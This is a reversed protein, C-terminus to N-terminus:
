PGDPPVQLSAPARDRAFPVLLLGVIAVCALMAWAENVTLALSAREVLSRIFVVTADDPPGPLRNILLMPDLGIAQAASVDGALLRARFDEGYIPSRGYLITDILAIGIAGGLNRMLNFLGSADAVEAEPLTGLAIRTPPLLCFMIAVGRVIQPWFMEGFDATRPQFASLGLGLAFLAFGTATLSLAGLRSELIAALPAAVLQAVGTVLMITGIEFADHRRVFGLFVPMLYTSGYLGVGLCFSLACGVAFSRRRFLTLRAIPHAARLTRRILLAMGAMSGILLSLCLMSFWGRQPAEKLGMMFSALAAALLVLSCKDLRAFASLNVGEKPLLLPTISAAIAGPVLNILFLWPWSWTQTIWGGVFPGVTPALVAVVGGVTTAVAHLRPPFLVFVASFVAPILVGGSFGQLVRFVLLVAFGGSFACAVSAITFLSVAITFLWRLSLVHTFLGTLPIAIVEAILYATQIWSMASPSIALARQITPLSTAVVQIDLIAMFMGLCM